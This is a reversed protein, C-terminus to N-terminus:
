VDIADIWWGSETPGVVSVLSSAGRGFRERSAREPGPGLGKSSDSALTVPLYNLANGFWIPLSSSTMATKAEDYTMSSNYRPIYIKSGANRVVGVGITGGSSTSVMLNSAAELDALQSTFTENLSSMACIAAMM